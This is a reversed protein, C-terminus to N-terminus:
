SSAPRTSWSTRRAHVARGRRVARGPHDAQGRAGVPRQPDHDRLGRGRRAPDLDAGERRRGARQRPLPRHGPDQRGPAPLRRDQQPPDGGAPVGAPARALGAAADARPDRAHRLRVDHGPRRRRRHGARRRRQPRHPARLGRERGPRHRAVARRDRHDRRLRRLRLRLRPQRLRDQPDDRARDEARGRVGRHDARRLRGRPRHEGPDRLGRPEAPGRGARRRPRRRLDPRRDQGPPRRHGIRLHVPVRQRPPRRYAHLPSPLPDWTRIPPERRDGSTKFDIM